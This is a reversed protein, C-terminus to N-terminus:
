SWRNSISSELGLHDLVRMLFHDMLGELDSPGQYFAPMFPHIEAGAEKLTTLNRLHILSLPTERPVLLLLRGEKLAVEGVRHVLNRGAGAALTGVTAMSAPIIVTGDVPYSGSSVPADLETEPHLHLKERHPLAEIFSSFELGEERLLVLKFAESCVLHVRAVQTHELLHRLFRDGLRAGSAGTLCATITKGTDEAM